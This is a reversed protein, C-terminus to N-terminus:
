FIVEVQPLALHSGNGTQLYLDAGSVFTIVGYLHSLSFSLLLNDTAQNGKIAAERLRLRERECEGQGGTERTRERERERM